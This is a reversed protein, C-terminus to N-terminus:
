IICWYLNMGWSSHFLESDNHPTLGTSYLSYCNFNTNEGATLNVVHQTSLWEVASIQSSFPLPFFFHCWRTIELDLTSFFLLAKSKTTGRNQLLAQAKGKSFLSKLADQSCKLGFYNHIHMKSICQRSM